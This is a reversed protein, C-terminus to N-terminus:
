LVFKLKTRLPEIDQYTIKPINPDRALRGAIIGTDINLKKAFMKISQPDYDGATVFSVYEPKPILVEQAFEDAELEKTDLEKSDEIDGFEIFQDKKGHKIIHGLEHFFTFWFGDARGGRLSLQILPNDNVWRTAGNVYTKTFYPIFKVIVGADACIQIMKEQFVNVPEVTLNRLQQMSQKLAEKDFTKIDALDAKASLEGCRLWAALSESSLDTHKAKRFAVSHIQPVLSLSSVGFFNLLNKVKDLRNLTKPALKLHVLEKYCSFKPLYPLENKINEDREIRALTEDYNRQLNNWFQASMGFVSSLKNATEPTIPNKGQVIENITKVALGTRESLEAQSMSVAELLEHLTEGPHIAINPQYTNESM